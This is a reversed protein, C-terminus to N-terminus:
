WTIQIFHIENEIVSCSVNFGLKTLAGQIKVPEHSDYSYINTSKFGLESMKKIHNLIATM